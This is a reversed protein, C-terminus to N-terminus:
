RAGGAGRSLCGDVMLRTMDEIENPTVIELQRFSAVQCIGFFGAWLTRAMRRRLHADSEFESALALELESMTEAIANFYWGPLTREDPWHFAFLQQWIAPRHRMFKLQTRALAMVVDATTSQKRAERERARSLQARLEALTRGNIQLMMDDLDAFVNYLTGPAYGIAQGVRRATVAAVGEAELIETAADLAMDRIQERTHDKRRAMKTGNISCQDFYIKVPYPAVVINHVVNL